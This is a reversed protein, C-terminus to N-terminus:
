KISSFLFFIFIEIDLFKKMKLSIENLSVIYFTHLLVLFMSQNCKLKKAETFPPSIVKKKGYM